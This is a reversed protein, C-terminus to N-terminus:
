TTRNLEKQVRLNEMGRDFEVKKHKFNAGFQIAFDRLAEEYNLNRLNIWFKSGTQKKMEEFIIEVNPIKPDILGKLELLKEIGHITIERIEEAWEIQKESGTLKTM